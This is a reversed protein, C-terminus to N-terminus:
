RGPAVIGFRQLSDASDIVTETAPRATWGLETRAKATSMEHRVGVYDLALRITPDFRAILWMAAYPLRRTPIRYGSPNYRTALLGALEGMWLHEGAVLYRQGAAGPHEMALRHAAAVDRADVLPYDMHPVAPLERAMLKRITELSTPHGPHLLPGLVLSPNIRVLELGHEGALDLATREALLKSMPYPGATSQDAWDSETWVKGPQARHGGCIADTSSTMVVRRVTGSAAAARMVRATGDVAPRILVEPDKPISAPVPSAVHWVARCGDVAAAWGDDSGLDAQVLQLTGHYQEADARLHDVEAHALDRVTGRVDYGHALLEHVCHGAIFGTAGTILVPGDTM